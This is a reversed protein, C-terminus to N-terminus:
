GSTKLWGSPTRAYRQGRGTGLGYGYAFHCFPCLIAWPGNITKGDIFTIGIPKHCLDCSEPPSGTWYKPKITKTM